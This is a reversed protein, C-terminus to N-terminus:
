ATMPPEGGDGNGIADLADKLKEPWPVGLLTTNELISIGENAVYFCVVANHLVATGMAQDLQWAIFVVLVMVGKKLLGEFGAKSSLAGNESKGSVGKLACILGTLYDVAMFVAMTQLLVPLGGWFGAVAGAAAAAGKVIKEWM